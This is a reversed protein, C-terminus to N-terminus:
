RSGVKRRLLAQGVLVAGVAVLAWPWLNQLEGLLNRIATQQALMGFLAVVVLILGPMLPSPRRARHGTIADLGAVLLFGAGLGLVITAWRPFLWELPARLLFGAGLGLLIGGPLVPGRFGRLASLALFVTGLLLLIVGPGSFRFARSLLFFAGLFLLVVGLTLSRRDNM